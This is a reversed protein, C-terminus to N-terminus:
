TNKWVQKGELGPLKGSFRYNFLGETIYLMTNVSVILIVTMQVTLNFWSISIAVLGFGLLRALYWCFIYQTAGVILAGKDIPTFVFQFFAAISIIRAFDGAVRWPEGFIFAFIDPSILFLVLFPLIAIKFSTTLTKLFITRFQGTERYAVSAQQRYVDGIANAILQAPLYIMRMALSYFGTVASGFASSIVFVPIQLAVGGIWQAPTLHMPHHKYRVAMKASQRLTVKSLSSSEPNTMFQKGLMATTVAQGLIYGSILGAGGWSAWGLGLSTVGTIGKQLVRNQSMTAYCGLRNLRYNLANYAGTLFLGLPIAYLWPGLSANGLKKSIPGNLVAVIILTLLSLAMAVLVSLVVLADADEDKEPLIVALEYCGTAAAALVGIIALFLALTGFDEPTYLRTLIPSIAIPIAQAITTGTVLTIVNRGFDGKPFLGKAYSILYNAM